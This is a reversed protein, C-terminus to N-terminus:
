EKNKFLGWEKEVFEKIRKKFIEKDFGAVSKRIIEGSFNNKNFNQVASVLSDVTQQGFFVGNIGEKVVELAGGGRYAIVPTGSAMSELLVIGFDEEQPFILARAGAYYNRTEEDSLRGLFQINKKAGKKLRGAEPGDGIIKLPLGLINFTEIALDFRKYQILRGVLLFYDEKGGASFNKYFSIDVPPHIVAAEKRYYKNVRMSVFASNAIFKDVRESSIKDWLRIYNMAVPVLKRTIFSFSFARAYSHCDDWAYRMPTHCYCIHLTETNTIVGKAYSNSDSIVVDYASLDFSEIAMPMLIPFSRHHSKSFPLSQLFSTYIKRKGFINKFLKEDYVLTYIPAPPFIECLAELVREAGGYQVLYDHVLAVRM